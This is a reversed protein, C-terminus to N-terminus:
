CVPAIQRECIKAEVAVLEGGLTSRRGVGKMFVTWGVYCIAATFLVTKMDIGSFLLGNAPHLGRKGLLSVALVGGGFAFALAFFIILQRLLRRSAGLGILVMLVAAGLKYANGSLFGMGPLFTAVAYGGGFLAAVAIRLRQLPEGAIRASALLLLYDMTVNLFFLSDIYVITM